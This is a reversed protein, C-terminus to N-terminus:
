QPGLACARDVACGDLEEWSLVVRDSGLAVLADALAARSRATTVVVRPADPPLADLAARLDRRLAPGPAFPAGQPARLAAESVAEVLVDSAEVVRARGQPAWRSAISPALAERAYAALARPSVLERPAAAVREIVSRAQAIPAGVDLLETLVVALEPLPVRRPVAAGVLAPATAALADLWARAEEVGFWRSPRDLILARLQDLAKAVTDPRAVVVGDLRLAGGDSARVSVEPVACGLAQAADRRLDEVREAVARSEGRPLELEIRAPAASARAPIALAGLVAAVVLFPAAPIGPLAGLFAVCGAAIVSARRDLLFTARLGRVVDEDSGGRTVALGAGLACLLSPVQALLGQGVALAGYRQLAALPSAGDRLVGVAAGGALNVAAILAGALADGRVFKMAGDMAAHFASEEALRAREREATAGDVLGARAAADLSMQRGPLADLAFRASVEAVREGGRAVVLYQVGVLVAFVAVGVVWDGGLAARGVAPILSGADGRTLIARAAAVEIALRAVTTLLLAAPLARLSRESTARAAVLALLLSAGLNLALLADLAAGPLPVLLTLVLGVLAGGAAIDEVPISRGGGSSARAM